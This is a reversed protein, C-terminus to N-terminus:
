LRYHRNFVKESDCLEYRKLEIMKLNMKEAWKWKLFYKEGIFITIKQARDLKKREEDLAVFDNM